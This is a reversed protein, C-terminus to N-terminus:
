SEYAGIDCMSEGDDPRAMGRQDTTIKGTGDDVQCADLPITDVAPNSPDSLLALTMIPGGNKSLQAPVSVFVQSLDQVSVIKDTAHQAQTEPQAM